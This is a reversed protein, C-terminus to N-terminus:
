YIQFDKEIIKNSQFKIFIIQFDKKIIKNSQFKIFM